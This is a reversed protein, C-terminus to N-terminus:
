PDVKEKPEPVVFRGNFITHRKLYAVVGGVLLLMEAIHDKLGDFVKLWLVKNDLAAHHEMWLERAKENSIPPLGSPKDDIAKQLEAIRGDLGEHQLLRGEWLEIKGKMDDTEWTLQHDHNRTLLDISALHGEREKKIGKEIGTLRKASAKAGERVKDKIEGVAAKRAGDVEALLVKKFTKDDFRLPALTTTFNQPRAAVAQLAKGIAKVEERVGQMAEIGTQALHESEKPTFAHLGACGSLLVIVVYKM